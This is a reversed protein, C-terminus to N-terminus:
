LRHRTRLTGLTNDAHVPRSSTRRHRITNTSLVNTQTGITNWCYARCTSGMTSINTRGTGISKVFMKESVCAIKFTKIFQGVPVTTKGGSAVCSCQSSRHRVQNSPPTQSTQHKRLVTLNLVPVNRFHGIHSIDKGTVLCCARKTIKGRVQGVPIRTRHFIHYAHKKPCM